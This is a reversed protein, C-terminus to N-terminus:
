DCASLSLAMFVPGSNGYLSDRTASIPYGLSAASGTPATTGNQNDGNFGIPNTVGLPNTITLTYGSSMNAATILNFSVNNGDNAQHINNWSRGSGDTTTIFGGTGSNGFDILVQAGMGVTPTLSLVILLTASLWLQVKRLGTVLRESEATRCV